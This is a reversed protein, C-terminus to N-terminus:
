RELLLKELRELAKARHSITNKEEKTLLAFTKDYGDPVFLPDYGFGNEGTPAGVIRGKCEGRAVLTEGDPFIM